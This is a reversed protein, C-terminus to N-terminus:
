ARSPDSPTLGMMMKATPQNRHSRHRSTPNGCFYIVVISLIYLIFLLTIGIVHSIM